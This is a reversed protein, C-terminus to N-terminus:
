PGTFAVKCAKDSIRMEADFVFKIVEDRTVSDRSAFWRNGDRRFGALIRIEGRKAGQKRRLADASIRQGNEFIMYSARPADLQDLLALVANVHMGLKLTASLTEIEDFECNKSSGSNGFLYLLVPSMAVVVGILLLVQRKRM